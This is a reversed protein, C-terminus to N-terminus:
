EGHNKIDTHAPISLHAQVLKWGDARKELVGTFRVGEYSRAKGQYVFNYNMVEAFWATTGTSDVNISQDSLSIYTNSISSFQKKIAAQINDWGILKEDTDTGFLLINSNPAWIKEIMPFDKNENAIIYKELVNGVAQKEAKLDVKLPVNHNCSSSFVLLLLSLILIIQNKM